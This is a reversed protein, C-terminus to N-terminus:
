ILDYPLNMLSMYIPYNQNMRPNNKQSYNELMPMFGQYYNLLELRVEDFRSKINKSYSLHRYKLKM